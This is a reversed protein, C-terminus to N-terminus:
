FITNQQSDNFILELTSFCVFTPSHDERIAAQTARDAKHEAVGNGKLYFVAHTKCLCFYIRNHCIQKIRVEM